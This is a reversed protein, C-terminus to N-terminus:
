ASCAPRAPPLEGTLGGRWPAWLRVDDFSSLGSDIWFGFGWDAGHGFPYDFDGALGDAHGSSNIELM